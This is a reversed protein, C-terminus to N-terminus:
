FLLSIQIVVSSLPNHCAHMCICVVSVGCDYDDYDYMYMCTMALRMIMCAHVCSIIIRIYLCYTYHACVTPRGVQGCLM